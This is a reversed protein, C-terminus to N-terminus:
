SEVDAPTDADSGTAVTEDAVFKDVDLIHDTATGASASEAELSPQAAEPAPLQEYEELAFAPSAALLCALSFAFLKRAFM